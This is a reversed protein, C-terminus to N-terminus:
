DEGKGFAQRKMEDIMGEPIIGKTEELQKRLNVLHEEDLKYANLKLLNEMGVYMLAAAELKNTDPGKEGKVKRDLDHKMYRHTMQQHAFMMKKSLFTRNLTSNAINDRKGLTIGDVCVGMVGDVQGDRYNVDEYNIEHNVWFFRKLLELPDAIDLSMRERFRTFFHSTYILLGDKETLQYATLGRKNYYYIIPYFVNRKKYTKIIYLWTNKQPSRYDYMVPPNDKTRSKLVVRWQRRADHDMKRQVVEHDAFIERRIEKENMTPLLM